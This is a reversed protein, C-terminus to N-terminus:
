KHLVPCWQLLVAGSRMCFFREPCTVEEESHLTVSMQAASFLEANVAASYVEMELHREATTQAASLVDAKMAASTAPGPSATVLM